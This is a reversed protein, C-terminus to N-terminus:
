KSQWMEKLVPAASLFATRKQQKVPCPCAQNKLAFDKESPIRDRKALRYKIYKQFLM